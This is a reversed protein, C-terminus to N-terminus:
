GRKFKGCSKLEPCRGLRKCKPGVGEFVCAYEKNCASWMQWAIKKIEWQARSCLREEFFHILSRFNMTVVLRTAVCASLLFRADEAPVGDDLFEHYLGDVMNMAKVFKLRREEHNFVSPPVIIEPEKHCVYRQSQQSYSAIRHRVFQHSCARSCTVHFTLSAHELPSEHPSKMMKRIFGEAIDEESKWRPCEEAEESSSYCRKFGAYIKRLNALKDDDEHFLLEAKPTIFKM